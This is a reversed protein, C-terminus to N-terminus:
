PLKGNIENLLQEYNDSHPGDYWYAEVSLHELWWPISLTVIYPKPEYARWHLLKMQRLGVNARYIEAVGTFDSTADIAGLSLNVSVRCGLWWNSRAATSSCGILLLNSPCLFNKNPIPIYTTPETGPRVQLNDKYAVNWVLSSTLELIPEDM